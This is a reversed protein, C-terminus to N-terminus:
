NETASNLPHLMGICEAVSCGVHMVLAFHMSCVRDHRPRRRRSAIKTRRLALRRYIHMSVVAIASWASGHMIMMTKSIPRPLSPIAQFLCVYVALLLLGRRSFAGQENTRRLDASSLSSWTLRALVINFGYILQNRNHHEMIRLQISTNSDIQLPLQTIKYM